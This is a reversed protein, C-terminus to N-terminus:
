EIVIEEANEALDPLDTLYSELERESIEGGMVKKEIIRKDIDGRFSSPGNKM